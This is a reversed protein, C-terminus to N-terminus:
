QLDFLKVLAGWDEDPKGPLRELERGKRCAVALYFAHILAESLRSGRTEIAKASLDFDKETAQTVMTRFPDTILRDPMLNQLATFTKQILARWRPHISSFPNGVLHADKPNVLYESARNLLKQIEPLRAKINQLLRERYEQGHEQLWRKHLMQKSLKKVTQVTGKAQKTRKPRITSKTAM